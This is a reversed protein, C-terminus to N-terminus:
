CRQQSCALPGPFILEQITAAAAVPRGYQQRLIGNMIKIMKAEVGVYQCLAAKSM